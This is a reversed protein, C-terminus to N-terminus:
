KHSNKVRWITTKSVKYIKALQAQPLPSKRIQRQQTPTLKRKFGERGAQRMDAMNQKQTGQRLHEPYCCQPNHCMHRILLGKAIHGYWLEYMLRHVLYKDGKYSYYGYGGSYRGRWEWCSDNKKDIACKSMLHWILWLTQDPDKILKM